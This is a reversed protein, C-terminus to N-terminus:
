AHNARVRHLSLPHQDSPPGLPCGPRSSLLCLSTLNLPHTVSIINLVHDLFNMRMFLEKHQISAESRKARKKGM